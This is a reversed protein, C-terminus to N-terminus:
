VGSPPRPKEKPRNSLHTSSRSARTLKANNRSSFLMRMRLYLDECDIYVWQIYDIQYNSFGWHYHSVM